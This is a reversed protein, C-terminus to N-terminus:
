SNRVKEEYITYSKSENTWVCHLFLGDCPVACVVYLRLFSGMLVTTNIRIYNDKRVVPISKLFQIKYHYSECHLVVLKSFRCEPSRILYFLRHYYFIRNELSFFCTANLDQLLLNKTIM